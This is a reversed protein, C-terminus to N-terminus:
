FPIGEEEIRALVRDAERFMYAARLETHLDSTDPCVEMSHGNLKFLSWSKQELYNATGSAEKGCIDCKVCRSRYFHEYAEEDSTVTYPRGGPFPISKLTSNTTM